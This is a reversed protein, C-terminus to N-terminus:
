ESGGSNLEFSLLTSSPPFPISTEPTQGQALSQWHLDSLVQLRGWPDECDYRM